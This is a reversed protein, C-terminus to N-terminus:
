RNNTPVGEIDSSLRLLTREMNIGDRCGRNVDEYTDQRSANNTSAYTKGRSGHDIDMTRQQPADVLEEKGLACADSIRPLEGLTLRDGKQNGEGKERWKKEQKVKSDRTAEGRSEKGCRWETM